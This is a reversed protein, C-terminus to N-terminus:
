QQPRRTSSSSSSSSSRSTRRGSEEDRSSASRSGSNLHEEDPRQQQQHQQPYLQADEDEGDEDLAATIELAANLVCILHRTRVEQPTLPTEQLNSNSGDLAEDLQPAHPLLDSLSSFSDQGGPFLIERLSRRASSRTSNAASSLTPTMFSSSPSTPKFPM